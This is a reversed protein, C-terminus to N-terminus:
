EASPLRNLFAAGASNMGFEIETLAEREETSMTFAMGFLGGAARAVEESLAVVRRLSSPEIDTDSGGAGHALAVLIRRGLSLSAEDPRETLWRELLQMAEPDVLGARKAVGLIHRREAAQVTDDAWAVQVLPLMLVLRHNSREIGLSRLGEIIKEETM